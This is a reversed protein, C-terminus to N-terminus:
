HFTVISDISASSVVGRIRGRMRRTAWCGAGVGGELNMKITLPPSLFFEAACVCTAKWSELETVDVFLLYFYFYFLIFKQDQDISITHHSRNRNRKGPELM